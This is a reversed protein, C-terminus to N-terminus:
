TYEYTDICLSAGDSVCNGAADGCTHVYMLIYTHICMRIVFAGESVCDRDVDGCVRLHQRLGGEKTNAKLHSRHKM